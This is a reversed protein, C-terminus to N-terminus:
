LAEMTGEKRLFSPNEKFYTTLRHRTSTQPAIQITLLIPDHDPLTQSEVHELKLIAHIWFGSGSLYFRELRSQDM